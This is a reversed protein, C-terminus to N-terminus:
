SSAPNRTHALHRVLLACLALKVIYVAILLAAQQSSPDETLDGLLITVYSRAVYIPLCIWFYVRLPIGSLGLLYNRVFYPPGPALAAIAAISRHTDRKPEPLRHGRKAFARQLPGRLVSRSIAHSALLHVATIGTVVAGAWFPGFKAGAVLYVIGISFGGIPLIAMLAIMTTEDFSVLWERIARWDVPYLRLLAISGVSVAVLALLWLWWRPLLTTLRNFWSFSFRM